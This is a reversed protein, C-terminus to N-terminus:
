LSWRSILDEINLFLSVDCAMSMIYTWRCTFHGYKMRIGITDDPMRHVDDTLWALSAKQGVTSM